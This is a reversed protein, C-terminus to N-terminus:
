NQIETMSSGFKNANDSMDVMATNAMEAAAETDGGLGQLLAASFSTVNSMYDNASMGATQYAQDAYAKMTDASDKFMTEIGGINQEYEAYQSVVAGGLAAAGAAAAATLGAFAGVLGKVGGSALGKLKGDAANAGDGVGSLGDKVSDAGDLSLKIRVDNDAM